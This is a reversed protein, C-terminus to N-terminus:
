RACRSFVFAIHGKTLMSIAPFLIVAMALSWLLNAGALAQIKPIISRFNASPDPKRGQIAEGALGVMFGITIGNLAFRAFNLALDIGTSQSWTSFCELILGILGGFFASVLFPGPYRAFVRLSEGLVEKVRFESM